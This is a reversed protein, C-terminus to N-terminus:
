RVDKRLHIDIRIEAGWAFLVYDHDNLYVSRWFLYSDKLLSINKLNLIDTLIQCSKDYVYERDFKLFNHGNTGTGGRRSSVFFCM